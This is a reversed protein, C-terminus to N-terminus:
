ESPGFQDLLENTGRAARGNGPPQITGLRDFFEQWDGRQASLGGRAPDEDPVATERHAPAGLLRPDVPDAALSLRELAVRRKSQEHPEPPTGEIFPHQDLSEPYLAPDPLAGAPPEPLRRVREVTEFYVAPAGDVELHLVTVCDLERISLQKVKRVFSDSLREAVFIVRPARGFRAAPYLRRVTEPYELCWSYAELIRLLMEESTTFGLVTLVLSDSADLGVLDIRAHGLLICSDIFRLGPELSEPNESVLSELDRLNRIELKKFQPRM